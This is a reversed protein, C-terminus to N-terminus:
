SWEQGCVLGMWVGFAIVGGAWDLGESDDGVVGAKVIARDGIQLGGQMM